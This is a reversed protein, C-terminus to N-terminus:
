SSNNVPVSVYFIYCVHRIKLVQGCRQVRDAGAQIQRLLLEGPPRSNRERGHVPSFATPDRRLFRRSLRKGGQGGPCSDVDIPQRNLRRFCRRPHGAAPGMNAPGGRRRRFGHLLHQPVRGAGDATLLVRRLELVIQQRDQAELPQRVYEVVLDRTQGFAVAVAGGRQLNGFRVMPEQTEIQRRFCAPGDDSAAFGVVPQGVLAAPAGAWGVDALMQGPGRPRHRTVVGSERADDVEHIKRGRAVALAVDVRGPEGGHDFGEGVRAVPEAEGIHLGIEEAASVFVQQALEGLSRALARSLKEGRGLDAKQHRVDHARPGALVAM